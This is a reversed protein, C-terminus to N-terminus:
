SKIKLIKFAMKSAKEESKKKSIDSVSVLKKDDLFLNCYFNKNSNEIKSMTKFTINQNNKHSWELLSKKFSIIKNSLLNLKVYPYIIIKEVLKKSYNYGKDKYVAGIIAELINGNIDDGFKNKNVSCNLLDLLKMERGIKNLNKRSVIKSKMETLQGENSKPLKSFLYSAIISNLVSDGLYELREFNYSEGDSNKINMSSHTFVKKFLTKNRPLYGIINSIKHYFVDEDNKKALFFDFLGM